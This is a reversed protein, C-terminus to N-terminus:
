NTITFSAPGTAGTSATNKMLKGTTDAADIVSLQLSKDSMVDIQLFGCGGPSLSAFQLWSKQSTNSSGATRAAPATGCLAIVASILGSYSGSALQPKMIQMNHSHGQLLLHSHPGSADNKGVIEDILNQMAKCDFPGGYYAWRPHHTIVVNATGSAWVSRLWAVRANGNVSGGSAPVPWGGAGNMVAGSNIIIFRIGGIDIFQDTLPIGKAQNIWM